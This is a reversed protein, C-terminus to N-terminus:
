RFSLRSQTWKIFSAFLIPFVPFFQVFLVIFKTLRDIRATADKRKKDLIQDRSRHRGLTDVRSRVISQRMSSDIEKTHREELIMTTPFYKEPVMSLGTILPKVWTTEETRVFVCVCLAKATRRKMTNTTGRRRSWCRSSYVHSNVISILYSNGMMASLGGKELGKKM